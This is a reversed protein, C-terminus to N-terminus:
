PEEQMCFLFGPLNGPSKRDTKLIASPLYSILCAYTTTQYHTKRNLPKVPLISPNQCHIYVQACKSRLYASKM